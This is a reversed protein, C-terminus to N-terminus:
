AQGPQMVKAKNTPSPNSDRAPTWRTFSSPITIYEERHENVRGTHVWGNKDTHPRPLDPHSLESPDALRGMTEVEAATPFQSYFKNSLDALDVEVEPKFDPALAASALELLITVAFEDEESLCPPTAPLEVVKGAEDTVVIEPITSLVPPAASTEAEKGKGPKVPEPSELKPDEVKPSEVKPEEPKPEEPKPGKPRTGKSTPAEKKVAKKKPRARAKPKTVKSLEAEQARLTPKRARGSTRGAPKKDPEMNPLSSVQALSPHLAFHNIDSGSSSNSSSYDGEPSHEYPISSPSIPNLSSLLLPHHLHPQQSSLGRDHHLISLCKYRYLEIPHQEASYQGSHFIPIHQTSQFDAKTNNFTSCAPNFPLASSTLHSVIHEAVSLIGKDGALVTFAMTFLSFKPSGEVLAKILSSAREEWGQILDPKILPVLMNLLLNGENRVQEGPFRQRKIQFYDEGNWADQPWLLILKERIRALELLLRQDLMGSDGGIQDVRVQDQYAAFHSTRDLFARMKDIAEQAMWPTKCLITDATTANETPRTTDRLELRGFITNNIEIPGSANALQNQRVDVIQEAVWLAVALPSVNWPAIGRLTDMGTTGKPISAM